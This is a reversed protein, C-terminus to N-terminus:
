PRAQGADRGPYRSRQFLNHGSGGTARFADVLRQTAARDYNPDRYNVGTQEGRLRPPRVDIGLGDQHETHGKFLGGGQLSINGVGFPTEKEGNALHGAVSTIVQMARPDGWQGNGATGPRGTEDTGYIYYGSGSEGAEPHQPLQVWSNAPPTPRPTPRPVEGAYEELSMPENMEKWTRAM